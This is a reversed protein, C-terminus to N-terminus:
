IKKSNIYEKIKDFVPKIFIGGVLSSILFYGPRDDINTSFVKGPLYKTLAFMLLGTLAALLPTLFFSVGTEMKAEFIIDMLLKMLGGVLGFAISLLMLSEILSFSNMFFFRSELRDRLIILQLEYDTSYLFNENEHSKFHKPPDYITKSFAAENSDLIAKDIQFQAGSFGAIGFYGGAILMVSFFIIAIAKKM